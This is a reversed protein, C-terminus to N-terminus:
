ALFRARWRAAPDYTGAAVQARLEAVREPGVGRGDWGVHHDPEAPELPALEQTIHVERPRQAKARMHHGRVFRAGRTPVAQGCGCGCLVKAPPTSDPSCGMKVAAPAVGMGPDSGAVSGFGEDDAPPPDAHIRPPRSRPPREGAVLDELRQELEAVRQYAALLERLLHLHRELRGAPDSACRPATLDRARGTLSCAEGAVV